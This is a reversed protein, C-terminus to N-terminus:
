KKLYKKLSDVSRQANKVARRLEQDEADGARIASIIDLTKEKVEKSTTLLNNLEKQARGSLKNGSSKAQTIMKDLEIQLKKLEKEADAQRQKAAAKIDERTEKGSKPALLVGAVYGAAAAIGSSIAIRKVSSKQKNM